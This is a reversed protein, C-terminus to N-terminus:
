GGRKVVGEDRWFLTARNKKLNISTAAATFGRGAELPTLDQREPAGSFPSIAAM